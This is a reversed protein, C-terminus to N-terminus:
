QSQVGVRYFLPGPGAVNTDIFSSTGARGVLNTAVCTFCPSGSLNTSCEVFYNIGEVSQWTVTVNTEDPMASLLRLASLPNTPCTGCIWEQWNNMADADAHAFDGSGDTPLGYNQLWAYSIVSGSGQFEYAGIVACSIRSLTWLASPM